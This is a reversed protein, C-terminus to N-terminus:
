KDTSNAAKKTAEQIMKKWKVKEAAHVGYQRRLEVYEMEKKLKQYSDYRGVALSGSAVAAKVACQPEELHRCDSFRCNAALREIDEFTTQVGDRSEWLQIERLGPTDMIVGGGPILFLERSSTTHRGRGDTDQVTQIKQLDRGLLHNLLTSKGVGSSGLLAVTEGRRLFESLSNLGDNRLASIALVPVALAVAEVEALKEEVNDCLDAKTLIVVPTAGSEWTLSLYRELRRLNFDQYLSMMLFVVDINAAIVQAELRRGAVKRVFQTRRPLIFDIVGRDKPQFIRCAVWDGVAPRDDAEVAEHRLHGGLEALIENERTVIRYCGKHASAIRGPTLSTEGQSEFQSEFFSNWGYEELCVM